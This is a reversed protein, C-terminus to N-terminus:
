CCCLCILPIIDFAATDADYPPMTIRRLTLLILLPAPSFRTALPMLLMDDQLMAADFADASKADAFRWRLMMARIFCCFIPMFFHLTAVILMLM